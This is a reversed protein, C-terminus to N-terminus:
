SSRASTACSHLKPRAKCRSASTLAFTRAVFSPAIFRSEKAEIAEGAAVHGVDDLFRPDIRQRAFNKVSRLKATAKADPVSAIVRFKGVMETCM